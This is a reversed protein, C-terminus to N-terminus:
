KYQEEVMADIYKMLDESSSEMEKVLKHVQYVLDPNQQWNERSKNYAQIASDHVKAHPKSLKGYAVTHSFHDRGLGSDCWEGLRCEHANKMITHHQDTDEPHNIAIYANQKYIIHDLKTLLCFTKDKAYSINKVSTQASQSLNLFQAHFTDMQEIIEASLQASTEAKRHMLDVRQNFSALTQAVEQASNKTHESLNKVEDAVVAFGRGHEGARAAEISANLALLNTQDAIGTIMSLSETINKSDDTLASIVDKVSQINSNIQNLSASIATVGSVSNEANNGTEEAIKEVQEMRTTIGILDNQNSQLNNLLNVTQQDQLEHLLSHEQHKHDQSSSLCKQLKQLSQLLRNNSLKSDLAPLDAPETPTACIREIWASSTEVMSFYQNLQDIVCQGLETKASEKIQRKNNSQMSEQLILATTALDKLQDSYIKNFILAIGIVSLSLVFVVISFGFSAFYYSDLVLIVAIIGTISSNGKFQQRNILSQDM